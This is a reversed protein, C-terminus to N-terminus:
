FILKGKGLSANGQLGGSHILLVHSGPPFYNNKVMDMAAFTMKGTYVFDTPIKTQEYFENMFRILSNHYKAYGGFHYDTVFIIKENLIKEKWGKIVPIGILQQNTLATKSFGKLMTGTGVACVIHTFDSLTTLQLIEGAGQEGETGAGGEPVIYYVPYADLILELSGQLNKDRYLQRSIYHLEMKYESAQQLTASIQEPKEGRIVGVCKINEIYCACATAVLHNSWAGGFTLLGKYNGEKFKQLHYKLKFWKNGSIVPHIKDLRLMQMRINKEVLIPMHISDSTVNAIDPLIM